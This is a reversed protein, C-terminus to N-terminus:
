AVRGSNVSPLDAIEDLIIENDLLQLPYPSAFHSCGFKFIRTPDDSKLFDITPWKKAIKAIETGQFQNMFLRKATESVFIIANEWSKCNYKGNHASVKLTYIGNNSAEIQAIDNHIEVETTVTRNEVYARLPYNVGNTFRISDFNGYRSTLGSWLTELDVKVYRKNKSRILVLRKDIQSEKSQAISYLSESRKFNHIKTRLKGAMSSAIDTYQQVFRRRTDRTLTKIDAQNKRFKSGRVDFDRFFKRIDNYFDVSANAVMKDLNESLYFKILADRVERNYELIFRNLVSKNRRLSFQYDDFFSYKALVKALLDIIDEITM